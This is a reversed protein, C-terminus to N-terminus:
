SSTPELRYTAVYLPFRQQEDSNSIVVPSLRFADMCSIDENQSSHLAIYCVKAKGVFPQALMWLLAADCKHNTAKTLQLFCIQSEDDNDFQCKAVADITECLSNRPIWYDISSLDNAWNEMERVCQKINDGSWKVKSTPACMISGTDALMLAQWVEEKMGNRDVNDYTRYNM